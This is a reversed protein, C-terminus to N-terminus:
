KDAFTELHSNWLDSTSKRPYTIDPSPTLISGLFIADRLSHGIGELTL